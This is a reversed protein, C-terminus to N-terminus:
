PRRMEVGAVRVSARLNLDVRELRDLGGESTALQPEDESPGLQMLVFQELVPAERAGTFCKPLDVREL